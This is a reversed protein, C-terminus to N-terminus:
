TYGYRRATRYGVLRHSMLGSLLRLLPEQNALGERLLEELFELDENRAEIITILTHIIICAKIWALAREHDTGDDIQQRLGRLYAFRGKISGMAHESKVRVQPINPYYNVPISASDAWIWKASKELLTSHEKYTRSDSFATSDHASGCHGTVYEIIRLNPLTVLKYGTNQTSKLDKSESPQWCAVVKCVKNRALAHTHRIGLNLQSVKALRHPNLVRTESILQLLVSHSSMRAAYVEDEDDESVEAMAIDSESSDSSSSPSSSTSSTDSSDINLIDVDDDNLREEELYGGIDGEVQLIAAQILQQRDRMDRHGAQTSSACTTLSIMFRPLTCFACIETKGSEAYTTPM